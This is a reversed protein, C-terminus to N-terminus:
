YMKPKKVIRQLYHKAPLIVFVLFNNGGCMQDTISRLTWFVLSCEPPTNRDNMLNSYLIVSYLTVARLNSMATAKFLYLIFSHLFPPPFAAGASFQRKGGFQKQRKEAM